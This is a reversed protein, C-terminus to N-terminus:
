LLDILRKQIRNMVDLYYKLEENSLTGNDWAKFKEEMKAAKAIMDAYKALLSLNLSDEKYEEMFACYEDYFAEYSDMAEKFEPRIGTSAKEETPKQSAAPTEQKTQKQETTSVTTPITATPSATVVPQKKVGCACCLVSIVIALVLFCIRRFLSSKKM